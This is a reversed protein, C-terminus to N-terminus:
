FEEKKYSILQDPQLYITENQMMIDLPKAQLKNAVTEITDESETIYVNVGKSPVLIEQNPYIYEDTDLGNLKILDNYNVRYRRAIEYMNDGKQVIYTEFISKKPSPVVIMNSPVINYNNELGNLGKLTELDTSFKRAITELTDNPEIRYVRYM